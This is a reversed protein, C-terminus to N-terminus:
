DGKLKKIAVAISLASATLGLAVGAGSIIDGVVERGKNVKVPAFLDNYQREVLERNIKSRMEQETMNSLDMRIKKPKPRSQKEINSIKNVTDSVESAIDKTVSLKSPFYKEYEERAKAEKVADKMMDSALKSDKASYSSNETSAARRMADTKRYFEKGKENLSGDKNQYRRKGAATLSGDENQYRRVYWKMGKTGHHCLVYEM